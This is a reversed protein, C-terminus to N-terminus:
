FNPTKFQDIQATSLDWVKSSTYVDKKLAELVEEKSDLNYIIMSGVMKGSDDVLAGPKSILKNAYNKKAETLHAERVSLRRNICDPDSFDRVTVLFQNTTQRSLLSSTSFSRSLLSRFKMSM